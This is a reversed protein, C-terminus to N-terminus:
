SIQVGQGREGAANAEAVARAEEYTTGGVIFAVVLRPAQLGWFLFLLRIKRFFIRQSVLSRWPALRRTPPAEWSSRWWWGVRRGSLVDNFCMISNKSM